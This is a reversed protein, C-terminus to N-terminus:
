RPGPGGGPQPPQFGQEDNGLMSQNQVDRVHEQTERDAVEWQSKTGCVKEQEIRSGTVRVYKCILKDGPLSVVTVTPKTPPACYRTASHCRQWRQWQARTKCVKVAGLKSSSMLMERCIRSEKKAPAATQESAPVAVPQDAAPQTASPAAAAQFLMSSLALLM